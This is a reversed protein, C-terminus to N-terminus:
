PSPKEEALSFIDRTEGPDSVLDYEENLQHHSSKCLNCFNDIARVRKRRKSRFAKVDNAFADVLSIEDRAIQSGELVPMLSEGDLSMKQGMGDLITPVIDTIQVMDDSVRGGKGPWTLILPSKIAEDYLGCNAFYIGHSNIVDGHDGLIALITSDLLGEKGLFGYLRGIEDDVIKITKDYKDVVEKVTFLGIENM